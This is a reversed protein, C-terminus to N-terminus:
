QVGLLYRLILARHQEAPSMNKFQDPMDDEEEQDEDESVAVGGYHDGQDEIYDPLDEAAAATAATEDETKPPQKPHRELDAHTLVYGLM